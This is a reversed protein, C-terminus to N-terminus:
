YIVHCCVVVSKSVMRAKADVTHSQHSVRNAKAPVLIFCIGFTTESLPVIACSDREYWPVLSATRSPLKNLYAYIGRLRKYESQVVTRRRDVPYEVWDISSVPAEFSRL